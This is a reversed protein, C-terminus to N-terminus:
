LSVNFPIIQRCFKFIIKFRLISLGNTFFENLLAVYNGCGNALIIFKNENGNFNINFFKLKELIKSTSFSLKIQTETFGIIDIKM